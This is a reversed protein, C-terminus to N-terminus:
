DALVCCTQLVEPSPTGNKVSDACMLRTRAQKHQGQTRLVARFRDTHSVYAVSADKAAHHLEAVGQTSQRGSKSASSVGAAVSMSRFLRRVGYQIILRPCCYKRPEASSVQGPAPYAKSGTNDESMDISPKQRSGKAEPLRGLTSPM